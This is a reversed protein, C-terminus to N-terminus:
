KNPPPPPPSDPLIDIVSKGFMQKLFVVIKKIKSSISNM